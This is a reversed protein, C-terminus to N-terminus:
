RKNLQLANVSSNVSDTSNSVFYLSISKSYGITYGIALTLLYLCILALVRKKLWKVTSMSCRHSKEERMWYQFTSQIKRLLPQDEMPAEELFKDVLRKNEEDETINM